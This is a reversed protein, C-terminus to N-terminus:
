DENNNHVDDSVSDDIITKAVDAPADAVKTFCQHYYGIAFRGQDDISLTKPFDLHFGSLIQAIEKDFWFASAEPKKVWDAGKGKRLNAIHHRTTRMIMPFTSAPAASAKGYYRDRITANVKGLAARQVQELIAFLRGLRYALNPENRDFSM